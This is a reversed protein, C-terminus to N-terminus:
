NAIQLGKNLKEADEYKMLERKKCGEFKTKRLIVKNEECWRWLSPLGGGNRGEKREVNIFGRAVLQAMTESVYQEGYGYQFGLYIQKQDEMKFNITVVASFYSNGNVKDFWSNASVDITKIFNDM